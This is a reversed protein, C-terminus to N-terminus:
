QLWWKMVAEETEWDVPNGDADHANVKPMNRLKRTEIMKSFARMYAKKIKPYKEFEEIRGKVTGMPCGICGLREHGEDYLKCYPLNYEHIFEWVEDTTWDIIPNVVTRRRKYCSEVMKRSEENDNVLVVGGRPTQYFDPSDIAEKPANVIVLEGQNRKRNSSEDWRVGTITLRGEGGTEKLYQCCYRAVRTPPTAKHIILNWMTIPDGKKHCIGDSTWYQRDRIVDPVTKVFQVLAPPDVPTINYHADYKVVAMDCLAKCVVSDKGGSFALYYGEPPEFTQIRKIATEVKDLGSINMQHISM